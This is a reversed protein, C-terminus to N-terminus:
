KPNFIKLKPFFRGTRSAYEDYISGFLERLLKEEGSAQYPLAIIFIIFYIITFWIGTALLFSFVEIAGGVYMPHRIYKYPGGTALVYEGKLPKYLRTFNANYYFNMLDWPICLWLGAIGIWNLWRPFDIAIIQFTSDWTNFICLFIVFIELISNLIIPLTVGLHSWRNGPVQHHNTSNSKELKISGSPLKDGRSRKLAIFGILFVVLGGLFNILLEFRNLM